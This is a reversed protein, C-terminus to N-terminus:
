NGSKAQQDWVKSWTVPPLNNFAERLREDWSSKLQRLYESDEEFRFRKQDSLANVDYMLVEIPPGVSLNSRMTSDMSVLACLAATEMSIEPTIIRDLIPKGYKSEGIQLFPTDRSTTIHNGQPYVLFAEHKGLGIQGGVIFYAEYNVDGKTHKEQQTINVEGIYDAAEELSHVNKLNISASQKIDRKLQGIVSQTTALNGSSLVTIQREGEDTFTFMKSYTSINDVGANTRSDSVFCLGADIRIAICYTM